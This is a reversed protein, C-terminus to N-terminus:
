VISKCILKSYSLDKPLQLYECKRLLQKNGEYIKADENEFKKWFLWTHYSVHWTQLVCHLSINAWILQIHLPNCWHNFAFEHWSWWFEQSKEDCNCGNLETLKWFWPHVSCKMHVPLHYTIVKNPQFVITVNFDASRMDLAQWLVVHRFFYCRYDLLRDSLTPFM